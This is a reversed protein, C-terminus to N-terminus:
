LIRSIIRAQEGDPLEEATIKLITEIYQKSNALEEEKSETKARKALRSRTFYKLNRLRKAENEDGAEAIKEDLAEIKEQVKEFDEKFDIQKMKRQRRQSTATTENVNSKTPM